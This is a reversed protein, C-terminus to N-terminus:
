VKNFIKLVGYPVCMKFIAKLTIKKPKSILNNELQIKKFEDYSAKSNGVGGVLFNVTPIYLYQITRKQNYFIKLSFEYDSAFKYKESYTGYIEHLNRKYILGQHFITTSSLVEPFRIQVCERVQNKILNIACLLIDPKKNLKELIDDLVNPEYFDGSNLMHLYDGTAMKIGKNMANYIGTDLESIWKTIQLKNSQNNEFSKIVEVSEDTSAGDIIIYEVQTKDSVDQSLVSEITKRLGEANNRNITIISLIPNSM